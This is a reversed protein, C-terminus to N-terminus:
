GRCASRTAPADALRPTGTMMYFSWYGVHPGYRATIADRDIPREYLEEATRAFRESWPLEDMRGLGRLLIAGASFPGLGRIALLADRAVAYPAARLFAEGLEHVGRAAAVIRAAKARNGIARAVEDEGLSALEGLSPTAHLTRGAVVVRKGFRALFRSRLAAALAVPARQMLVSYVAIEALTLFRVHHLGHLLEILREMPRDGRAAAYFPALDDAAGLFHAAHRALENAVARPTDAPAEMVVRGRTGARLTFAYATDGVAVAATVADDTVLYENRCPPFRAIFALSQAFSFPQHTPITVQM